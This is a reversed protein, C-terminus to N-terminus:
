YYKLKFLEDVTKDAASKGLAEAASVAFSKLAQQLLKKPSKKLFSQLQLHPLKKVQKSLFTLCAKAM